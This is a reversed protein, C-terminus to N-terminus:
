YTVTRIRKLRRFMLLNGREETVDCSLRWIVLKVESVVFVLRGHEGASLCVVSYSLVM